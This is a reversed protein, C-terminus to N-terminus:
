KPVLEITKIVEKPTVVMEEGYFIRITRMIVEPPDNIGANKMLWDECEKTSHFELIEHRNGVHNHHYVFLRSFSM